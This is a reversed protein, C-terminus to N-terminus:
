RGEVITHRDKNSATFDVAVSMNVCWGKQLYEIFNPKFIQAFDEFRLTGGIVNGPGILQHEKGINGLLSEINSTFSGYLVDARNGINDSYVSFRIPAKKDGDCMRLYNVSMKDFEPTVGQKKESTAVLM